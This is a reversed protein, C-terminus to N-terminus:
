FFRKDHCFFGIWKIFRAKSWSLKDTVINPNTFLHIKGYILENKHNLILKLDLSRDHKYSSPKKRSSSLNLWFISWPLCNKFCAKRLM